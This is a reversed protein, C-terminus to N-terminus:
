DLLKEDKLKELQNPYLELVKKYLKEMRKVHNEASFTESIRLAAKAFEKLKPQDTILEEVRKTLDADIDVLYGNEGDHILDLYSDDRRAISPLSCIAGEILTMPHVESLSATVFINSISYLEHVESWPVFGTFITQKEIGAAKSKEVLEGHAPGDGVFVMKVHSHKKLIPTVSDYLEHIRKEPGIRGVFILLKDEPTLGYKAREEAIDKETFHQLKFKAMDIGNPVIQVPTKPNVMANYKKAKLSPAVICSTGKMFFRFFTRWLWKIKLLPSYNTYMEWMTHTTTVRPINLKLAAKRGSLGMSFETHVHILDIKHEKLFQHVKKQNVMSPGFGQKSGFDFSIVPFLLVNPDTNVYGKQLPAVIVVHHGNKELGEKLQQASTIVGNKMPTWCDLFLAINM